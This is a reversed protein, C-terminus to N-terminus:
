AAVNDIFHIWLAGRLLGPWTALIVLPGIAEVEFIDRFDTSHRHRQKAWTLRLERPVKLYAAIPHVLTSGWVAVGVGAHTGEGDSYSVFFPMDGPSVLVARPFVDSML